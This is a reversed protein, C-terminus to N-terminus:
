LSATRRSFHLQVSEPFQLDTASFPSQWFCNKVALKATIKVALEILGPQIMELVARDLCSVYSKYRYIPVIKYTSQLHDESKSM